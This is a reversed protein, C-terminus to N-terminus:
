AAVARRGGLRRATVLADAASEVLESPTLGDVPFLAIGISLDLYLPEYGPLSLPRRYLHDLYRQAVFAAGQSDSEPMLLLFSDDSYRRLLDGDRCLARLTVGVEAIAREQGDVGIVHGLTAFQDLGALLVALARRTRRARALERDLQELLCEREIAEVLSGAAAPWGTPRPMTTALCLALLPAFRELAVQWCLLDAAVEAARILLV